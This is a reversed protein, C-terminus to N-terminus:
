FVPQAPVYYVILSVQASAGTNNQLTVSTGGSAYVAVGAGGPAASIGTGFLLLTGSGTALLQGGGGAGAEGAYAVFLQAMSFAPFGITQAAGAQATTSALTGTWTYVNHGLISFYPTTGLLPNSYYQIQETAGLGSGSSPLGASFVKVLGTGVNPPGALDSGFNMFLISDCSDDIDFVTGNIGKLPEVSVANFTVERVNRLYFATQYAPPSATDTPYVGCYVNKFTIQEVQSLSLAGPPSAPPPAIYPRVLFSAPQPNAALEGGEWKVNEFVVQESGRGPDVDEGNWLFAGAGGVWVQKGTFVVNTLACGPEVEVLPHAPTRSGINYLVLNTFCWHDQGSESGPLNAGPFLSIVIPRGAYLYVDSVTSEDRGLLHLAISDGDGSQLQVMVNRITFNRVQGCYIATRTDFNNECWISLDTIGCRWLLETSSGSTFTFLVSGGEPPTSSPAPTDFFIRTMDIGAGRVIVSVNGTIPSLPAQVLYEGRGFVLTSPAQLGGTATPLAAIAANVAASADATKDPRAGFWDVWVEPAPVVSGNQAAAFVVSGAGGFIRWQGALVQGAVTVTVGAAPELVAGPEFIVTSGLTLDSALPYTGAPVLVPQGAGQASVFSPAWDTSDAPPYAAVNYVAGGQDLLRGTYVTPPTPEAKTQPDSVTAKRM